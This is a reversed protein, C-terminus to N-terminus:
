EVLVTASNGVGRRLRERLALMRDRAEAWEVFDFGEAYEFEVSSLARRAKAAFKVGTGLEVGDLQELAVGAPLRLRFKGHRISFPYGGPLGTVGPLSLQLTQGTLLAMMPIVATLTTVDNLEESVVGLKPRWDLARIQRENVWVRPQCRRKEGRIWPGLHGHHGIVRVDQDEGQARSRCFAEVIACNGIGCTTRLGLRDLVVNVADPYSANVIAADIDEAGRSVEAILPIQLPLTIGFGASAILKTWATQGQAAEWPSQLSAVHFVVRPKLSAFARAFASARFRAVECPVFRVRGGLLASRANAILVMKAIKSQSRGMVAVRLPEERLQAFSNIVRTALSGSGIIVIDARSM